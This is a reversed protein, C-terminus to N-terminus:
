KGKKFFDKVMAMGIGVLIEKVGAERYITSAIDRAHNYFESAVELLSDKFSKEIKERYDERDDNSNFNGSNQNVDAAVAIRKKKPLHEVIFSLLKGLNYPEQLLRGDYSEGAAYYIVDPSFGTDNAIRKRVAESQEDLRAILEEKPQNKESDWFTHHMVKDAKNVGILLRGKDDERLNPAVVDKILKYASSFDRSTGDLVLFILDILPKGTADNRRLLDVIKEQHQRDKEASDGLGPTDWIVVNNLAYHHIEMTEPNASEGVEAKTETVVGSTHFLANITSSKGVGTGGILLVNVKINKITELIKQLDEKRPSDKVAEIDRRFKVFYDSM